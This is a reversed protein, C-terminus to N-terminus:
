EYLEREYRENEQAERKEQAVRMEEREWHARVEPTMQDRLVEDPHKEVETERTREGWWAALAIALVMDDHAGERWAAEYSDHGAASLKVKFNELERVLNQAEPISRAIRIRKEQFLVQMRSVLVRKPVMWGGTESRYAETQGATITVAHLPFLEADKLMDVVPRGVGTADVILDVNGVLAPTRFMEVVRKVIDPYSTHLKPREIHRVDYSMGSRELVTIATFDRAQGLDLGILYRM